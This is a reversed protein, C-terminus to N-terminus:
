VEDNTPPQTFLNTDTIQLVIFHHLSFQISMLHLTFWLFSLYSIGIRDKQRQKMTKRIHGCMNENHFSTKNNM